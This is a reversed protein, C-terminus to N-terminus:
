SVSGVIDHASNIASLASSPRQSANLYCSVYPWIAVQQTSAAPRAGDSKAKNRRSRDRSDSADTSKGRRGFEFASMSSSMVSMVSSWKGSRESALTDKWIGGFVVAVSRRRASWVLPNSKSQLASSSSALKAGRLTGRPCSPSRVGLTRGVDRGGGWVRDGVGVEAEDTM